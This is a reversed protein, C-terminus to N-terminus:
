CTPHIASVARYTSARAKPFRMTCRFRRALKAKQVDLEGGALSLLYTSHAQDMKWHYTRTHAAADHTSPSETGNGIVTWDEPVTTHTESTCKDNPFDYCPVWSSNTNTEGQTWFGTKRDPNNPDPDIWRFGGSGNAGTRRRAGEPSPMTYKIEVTAKKGPQLPMSQAFITLVDGKHEFQADKGDITCSDIKLNSRADLAFSSLSDKLPSLYHTVVGAASHDAANITFDLKLHRVHFQLVRPAHVTAAPPVFPNQGQGRRQAYAHSPLLCLASLAAFGGIGPLHARLGARFPRNM